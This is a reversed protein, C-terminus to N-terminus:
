TTSAYQFVGREIYKINHGWAQVDIPMPKNYSHGKKFSTSSQAM